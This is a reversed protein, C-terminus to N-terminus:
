LNDWLNSHRLTAICHRIRGAKSPADQQQYYAEMEQFEKFIREFKSDGVLEHIIPDDDYEKESDDELLEAQELADSEIETLVEKIPTDKEIVKRPRGKKAMIQSNRLQNFHKGTIERSM